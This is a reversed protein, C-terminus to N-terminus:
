DGSEKPSDEWDREAQRKAPEKGGKQAAESGDGPRPPVKDPERKGHDRQQYEKSETSM